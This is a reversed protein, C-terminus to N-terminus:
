RPWAAITLSSHSSQVKIAAYLGFRYSTTTLSASVSALQGQAM